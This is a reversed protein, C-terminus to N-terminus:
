RILWRWSVRMSQRWWQKAQPMRGLSFSKRRSVGVSAHSHGGTVLTTM